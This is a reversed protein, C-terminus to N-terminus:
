AALWDRGRTLWHGVASALDTLDRTTDRCQSRVDALADEVTQLGTRDTPLGLTAALRENADIADACARDAQDRARAADDLAAAAQEASRDAHESRALADVVPAETPLADRIARATTIAEAVVALEDDTATL